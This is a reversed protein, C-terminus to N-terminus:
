RKDTSDSHRDLLLQYEEPTGCFDIQDLEIIDFKVTAGREILENYLPAIYYEGRVTREHKLADLFLAEFVSKQKFYYLGDSCLDSIRDKETTRIVDNQGNPLVFSWHNGEARFVELYGDCQDIFNPKKYAHRFTDINFIYIPFDDNYNKLALYATEAQGRTEENLIIIKFDAIGLKRAENEVFTPTDHVDRVVFVFPETSFYHKFSLVSHSFVSTGNLELKYKPQLYGAKFFRSSLGAM